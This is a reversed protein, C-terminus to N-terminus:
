AGLGRLNSMEGCCNCQPFLKPNLIESNMAEVKALAPIDLLSLFSYRHNSKFLPTSTAFIIIPYLFYNRNFSLYRLM